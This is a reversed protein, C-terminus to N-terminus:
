ILASLHLFDFRKREDNCKQGFLISNGETNKNKESNGRKEKSKMMYKYTCILVKM